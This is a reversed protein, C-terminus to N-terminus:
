IDNHKCAFKKADAGTIGQMQLIYANAILTTNNESYVM